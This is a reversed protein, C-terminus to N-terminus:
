KSISEESTKDIGNEYKFQCHEPQIYQGSLLIDQRKAAEASGVYTIGDKLYYILCESMLSDENLNVLNPRQLLAPHNVSKCVIRVKKPHLIGLASGDEGTALGM